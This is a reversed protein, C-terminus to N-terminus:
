DQRMEVTGQPVGFDYLTGRSGVSHWVKAKTAAVPRIIAPGDSHPKNFERSQDIRLVLRIQVKLDHRLSEPWHFLRWSVCPTAPELGARGM